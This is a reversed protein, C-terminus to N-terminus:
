VHLLAATPLFSCNSNGSEKEHTTVGGELLAIVTGKGTQATGSLTTPGDNNIGNNNLPTVGSRLTDLNFWQVNMGGQERAAPPTGLATFLFVTEGPKAGPAPMETPGPVAIASGMADSTGGICHASVTPWYFQRFNPNNGEPMAVGGKGDGGGAILTPYGAALGEHVLREADGGEWTLRVALEWGHERLRNVAARVDANLAQKGHLILWAKRERM